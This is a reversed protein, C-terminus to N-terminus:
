VAKDQADLTRWSGHTPSFFFVESILLEFPYNSCPSVYCRLLSCHNTSFHCSVPFSNYTESPLLSHSPLYIPSVLSVYHNNRTPKKCLNRESCDRLQYSNGKCTILLLRSRSKPLHLLPCLAPKQCRSKRLQRRSLIIRIGFHWVKLSAYEPGRYM